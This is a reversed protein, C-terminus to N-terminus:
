TYSKSLQRRRGSILIFSYALALYTWFILSSTIPSMMGEMLLGSVSLIFLISYSNTTNSLDAKKIKFLNYIIIVLLSSLFFLTILGKSILIDLLFNHVVSEEGSFWYFYQIFSGKGAGFFLLKMDSVVLDLMVDYAHLRSQFTSPRIGEVFLYIEHFYYGFLIIAATAFGSFVSKKLLNRKTNFTFYFFLSVQLILGIWLSRSYTLVACILLIIMIPVRVWLRKIVTDTIVFPFTGLIMLSYPQVTSLLAVTGVYFPGIQLHSMREYGPIGFGISKLITLGSYILLSTCFILLVKKLTSTDRVLDATIYFIALFELLNLTMKLDYSINENWPVYFLSILSSIIVLMFLQVFRIPHFSMRSQSAIRKILVMYLLALLLLDVVSVHIFEIYFTLYESAELPLIFIYLFFLSETFGIGKVREFETLDRCLSKKTINESIQM